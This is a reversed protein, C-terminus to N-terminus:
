DGPFLMGRIVKPKRFLAPDIDQNVSARTTTFRSVREGEAFREEVTPLVLGSVPKFESYLRREHWKLDAGLVGDIALVRHSVADIAFRWRTGGPGVFDVLDCTRGRIVESGRRAPRSGSANAARLLHVLDGTLSAKLTAVGASDVEMLAATDSQALTWASDAVLVQRSEFQLMRTAFSLRDPDQRVISFQGSFEQQGAYLMMEGENVLVRAAGLKTAGGHALVAASIAARGRRAQEATPAALTDVQAIPTRHYPVVNVAGLPALKEGLVDGPGAVLVAPPQALAQLAPTLDVGAVLRQYQRAIADAPHGAFDFAQWQSAYAGLTELPLPFGQAAHRRLGELAAGAPPHSAFARVADRVRRTVAPVSDTPAGFAVTLLSADRLTQLSVRAAAPLNSRELGAAALPWAAADASARGAGIWALRVESWRAGPLDVIQVGPSPKPAEVARDPATRGSWRGFAEEAVAFAREPTVDGSITLVARDPRWRSRYFSQVHERTTGLLSQIDGSASHGYPHKGFAAGWVRDDAVSGASQRQLGLQQAILRRSTSFAEDAFIASTAADSVLEAAQEFANTRVGCAVQAYDRSASSTFTAGIAALEAAFHEATRSSTGDDVLMATLPALGPLSDPEAIVGAPVLLQMQVIPARADSFVAVRLGNGLTRVVPAPFRPAPPAPDAVATAAAPTAAHPAAVSLVSAAFAAALAFTMPFRKM